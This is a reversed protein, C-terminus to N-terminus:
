ASGGVVGPAPTALRATGALLAEAARRVPAAIGALSTARVEAEYRDALARDGAVRAARTLLVRALLAESPHQMLTALGLAEQARARATVADGADLDLRAARNLTFSLRHKADALRLNELAVDLEERAGPTKRAHGCLAKLAVAFAGESGERFKGALEVLEASFRCAEEYRERALEVVVLHELAQFESMHESRRRAHERAVEFASRAEDLQGRHLRLMGASDNVAADELGLRQSLAVAELSLAEAQHLDRDLLLLCRAAEALAAVRDEDSAGRSIREAQLMGRQAETWDGVEWRVYSLVNFARRAHEHRGHELARQALAELKGAAEDPDAPRRAAYSIQMLEILREVREPEELQEAAATGRKALAYAESPSFLQLCRLGATVCARAAVSPDGGLLAHHALEAALAAKADSRQDLLAAVRQHMLRRRPASLEAYVVQRVIDHAFRYGGLPDDTTELPTLLAHRELRELTGTLALAEIVTLDALRAVGFQTGLVACWRLVDVAEPELRGIRDRVLQTLTVGFAGERESRALELAFLPNGACGLVIREGDREPAVARVLERMDDARLPGVALDELLGDRRLSRVVRVAADNDDLEGSRAALAVFLPLQKSTRSVFHLLSASAEDCWHLDDLVLVVPRASPEGGSGGGSWRAITSAVAGFLRDRTLSGGDTPGESFLPALEGTELDGNRGRITGELGDIWPGLPRDREAEFSAGSIVVAGTHEAGAALEALLRSKGLGPEGSLLVVRARKDACVARFRDRLWDLEEKRGIIPSARLSREISPPTPSPPPPPTPSAAPTSRLLQRIASPDGRGLEAFMRKASAYHQEAEDRRGSRLLLEVLSTRASEDLPEVQVLRRAHPLAREPEGALGEILARLLVAHERRAQEREAVCWSQFEDFEVLELGELFDGGVSAALADLEPLSFTELGRRHADRLAFLDIDAGGTVFGVTERGAVLRTHTEDDVLKRLKSLSWRLAGRPDDTVDWLLDCLRSRRQERGKVVLYALLARTKKSAPLPQPAGGRLVQLEGLLRIQLGNQSAQGAKGVARAYWM